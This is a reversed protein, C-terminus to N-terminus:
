KYYFMLLFASIGFKVAGSVEICYGLTGRCGPQSYQDLPHPLPWKMQSTMLNTTQMRHMRTVLLTDRKKNQKLADRKADVSRIGDDNLIRRSFRNSCEHHRILNLFM